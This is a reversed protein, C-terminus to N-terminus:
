EPVSCYCAKTIEPQLTNNDSHQGAAKLFRERGLDTTFGEQLVVNSEPEDGLKRGDRAGLEKKQVCATIFAAVNGRYAQKLKLHHCTHASVGKEIEWVCAQKNKAALNKVTAYPVYSDDVSHIFLIPCPVQAIDDTICTQADQRRLSPALWWKITAFVAVLPSSAVTYCSSKQIDKSSKGCCLPRVIGPLVKTKIHTEPVGIMQTVSSFSSDSVLGAIPYQTAESKKQLMILARAAHFGGACIGHVIIPVGPDKKQLMELAGIIDKYEDKGYSGLNTLFRGESKGHGRADFFLMTTDEPKTCDKFMPFYTAIGEKRGPFFGACYLIKVKPNKVERLMGNIKLGDETSFDVEKFGSEAMKQQVKKLDVLFRTDFYPSTELTRLHEAMAQRVNDKRQETASLPLFGVFCLTAVTSVAFLLGRYRSYFM